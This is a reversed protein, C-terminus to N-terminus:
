QSHCLPCSNPPLDHLQPVIRQTKNPIHNFSTSQQNSLPKSEKGPQLDRTLYFHFRAHLFFLLKTLSPLILMYQRTNPSYCQYLKQLHAPSQLSSEFVHPCMISLVPLVLIMLLMTCANM